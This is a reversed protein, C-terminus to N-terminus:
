FPIPGPAAGGPAGEVFYDYSMTMNPKMAESSSGDLSGLQADELWCGVLIYEYIPILQRNLRMIQVVADTDEKRWQHGSTTRYCIEKWAKLFESIKNDVTEVFVINIQKSYSTIGPQKIEHGRISVTVPQNTAQPLEASECRVNWDPESMWTGASSVGRPPFLFQMEWQYVTAYDATAQIQGINPFM